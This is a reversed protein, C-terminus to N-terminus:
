LLHYPFGTGSNEPGLPVVLAIKSFQPGCKSDHHRAITSGDDSLRLFQFSRSLWAPNGRVASQRDGDHHEREVLTM